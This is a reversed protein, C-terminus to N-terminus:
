ETGSQGAIRAYAERVSFYASKPQRYESVLGKNNLSRPRGMARKPHCIIDCYQWIFCGAVHDNGRLTEISTRLHEVQYEESWKFAAMSHYGPIAGAGFETILIPKEPYLQAMRRLYEAFDAGDLDNVYWGIYENLCLVDALALHKDYWYKDSAYTVLRTEDLARALGILDAMATSLDVGPATDVQTQCENHVSWFLISPHNFQQEIMERLTVQLKGKTPPNAIQAASYQWGPVEAFFILGAEDCLDLFTPHNPYHSGRVANCRLDRITDIDRQMLKDPLAFGWDPHDEHRNVGRIWLRHGNLLIDKGDVRVERLGFRVLYADTGLRVMAWYLDPSEPSWPLPDAIQAQLRAEIQTGAPITVPEEVLLDGIQLSLPLTTPADAANYLVARVEVQGGPQGRVHVRQIFASEVQECLVSRTIGGYPFWDVADKPLTTNDHHNDVRVVLANEGARVPALFHFATHGGEHEGLLQGNLWVRAVDAVAGFTLLARGSWDCQFSTRYWAVGEYDQLGLETNWCGPVSLRKDEPFRAVYGAEEGHAEPDTCFSWWGDLYLKHREPTRDYTGLM